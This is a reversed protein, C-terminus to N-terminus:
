AAASREPPILVTLPKEALRFHFPSPVRKKEGDYALLSRRRHVDVTLEKPALFEYDRGEQATQTVLRLAIRFLDLRTEARGILVAFADDAIADGGKLGLRDLQYASRSVFVLPTRRTIPEGDDATLTLRMPRQFRWFTRAVSWMAMARRRGYRAYVQERQKLIAPYIGISANNLFVQGNVMGVRITSPKGDLVAQAAEAPDEPFGLGRSFFNFTGLPLAAFPCDRGVMAGAVAMATGDGGGSIITRAGDDIARQVVDEINCGPVWRYIRAGKAGFVQIARDLAHLDRENTGSNRNAIIAVPSPRRM